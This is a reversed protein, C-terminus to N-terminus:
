TIKLFGGVKAELMATGVMARTTGAGFDKCL